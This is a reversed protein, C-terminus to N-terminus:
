YSYNLNSLSVGFHRLLIAFRAAYVVSQEPQGNADLRPLIDYVIQIPCHSSTDPRAEYYCTSIVTNILHDDLWAGPKVIVPKHEANYFGKKTAHGCRRLRRTKM